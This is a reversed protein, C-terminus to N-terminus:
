ERIIAEGASFDEARAPAGYNVGPRFNDVLAGYASVDDEYAARGEILLDASAIAEYAADPPSPREAFAGPAGCAFFLGTTGVLILNRM